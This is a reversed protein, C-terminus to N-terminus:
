FMQNMCWVVLHISVLVAVLLILLFLFQNDIVSDISIIILKFYGYPYTDILNYMKHNLSHKVCKKTSKFYYNTPLRIGNNIQESITRIGLYTEVPHIFILQISIRKSRTFKVYTGYNGM